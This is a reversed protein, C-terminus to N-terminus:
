PEVEDSSGSSRHVHWSLITTQADTAYADRIAQKMIDIISDLLVMVERQTHTTDLDAVLKPYLVTNGDGDVYAKWKFSWNLVALDPDADVVGQYKSQYAAAVSSQGRNRLWGLPRTTDLTVVVKVYVQV